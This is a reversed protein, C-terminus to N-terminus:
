AAEDGDPTPFWERLHEAFAGCADTVTFIGVLKEHRTVLASGLQHEAMHALVRDLPTELDVVYPEPTYTERVRVDVPDTDRRVALLLGIDRESVVGILDGGETVPLHRIQHEWMLDRAANVDRDVEISYPFPTMTSKVRPMSKM